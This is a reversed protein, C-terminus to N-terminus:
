AGRLAVVMASQAGTRQTWCVAAVNNADVALDLDVPDTPNTPTGPTDSVTEVTWTAGSLYAYRIEVASATRYTYAICPTGDSQYALQSAEAVAKTAGSLTLSDAKQRAGSYSANYGVYALEEQGATGTYSFSVGATGAATFALSGLPLSNQENNFASWHTIDGAAQQYAYGGDIVVTAKGDPSFRMHPYLWDQGFDYYLSGQANDVQGTTADSWFVTRLEMDNLPHSPDASRNGNGACYAIAYSADGSKRAISSASAGDTFAMRWNLWQPNGSIVALATCGLRSNGNSGALSTYLLSIRPLQVGPDIVMDLGQVKANPSTPDGTNNVSASQPDQEFPSVSWSSLSGFGTSRDCIAFYGDGDSGDAWAVAPNNGATFDLCPTLGAQGTALTIQQWPSTDLTLGARSVTVSQGDTILVAAYCANNSSLYAAMGGLPAAYSAASSRGLVEWKKSAYNAVAVWYGPNAGTFQGATTDLKLQQLQAASVIGSFRYVAWETANAGAALELAAGQATAGASHSTAASGDQWTDATAATLKGLGDLAPLDPLGSLAPPAPAQLLRLLRPDASPGAVGVAPDPLARPVGAVPLAPMRPPLASPAAAGPQRGGCGAMAPALAAALALGALTRILHPPM